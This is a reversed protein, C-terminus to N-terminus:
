GHRLEAKCSAEEAVEEEQREVDQQALLVVGDLPTIIHGEINIKHKKCMGTKAALQHCLGQNKLNHIM